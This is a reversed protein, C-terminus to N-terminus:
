QVQGDRVSNRPSSHSDRLVCRAEVLASGPGSSGTIMQSVLDVAIAALQDKNPDVTSLRPRISRTWFINDFGTVSVDDPVKIQHDDLVDLAAFAVVDSVAVIATVGEIGGQQIERSLVECAADYRYGCPLHKVTADPVKALARRLGELKVDTPFSGTRGGLFLFRRHGLTVLQRVLEFMGDEERARVSMVPQGVSPYGILVLPVRKAAEVIPSTDDAEDNRAIMIIGDVRRDLLMRLSNAEDSVSIANQLMLQLGRAGAFRQIHAMVEVFYPNTLDTGLVGLVRTSRTSLSRAIQNPSYGTEALAAEVRRRTRASVPYNGNLVRSVTAPSVGARRAVDYITPNRTPDREHMHDSRM